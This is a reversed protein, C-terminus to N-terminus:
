CDLDRGMCPCIDKKRWVSLLLV